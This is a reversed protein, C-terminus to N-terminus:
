KQETVHVKLTATVEPHLKVPVNTYGLARIADALEIKRKDLKLGHQAQLSEAIQKSTISGFLRGGEGAKAPITVTLKELQEKLKKANALEEAAQRQEKQKQAELAKLNAPTAEIALGQKFLFNNAYGDAVNKIEGKKGKGKVDKLFIVKM